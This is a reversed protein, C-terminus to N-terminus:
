TNPLQGIFRFFWRMGVFWLYGVVAGVISLIVINAAALEGSSYLMWGTWLVAFTVSCLKLTNLPNM